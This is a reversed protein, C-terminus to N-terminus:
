KLRTAALLDRLEGTTRTNIVDNATLGARRAQSVGYDINEFDHISHADTNITVMVGMDAAQRCYRDHLDLRHPGANLELYCGRQAAHALIREMDLDMEPRKPMRRGTPHGVFTTYPNDMARIIRETQKDRPLSFKSHVSVVVVDLLALVDDDLDLSGDELIDVEIGKLITIGDIQDQLRDIEDVQRRLRDEDLGNAVTLRKSHDTVAWFEYGIDRAATAIEAIPHKGDSADSHAHLNGRIDDSTILTPLQGDLAQQIEGRDERLEPPIWPLDLAAYVDKETAGAIATDDQQVSYENVRLGMTKARARIAINHAQSGTFYQLAAGWSDAPVVRLDVQLGNDLVASGKTNGQGLVTKFEAFECFHTILAEATGSATVTALFDLDGVTDRGRRWSGAPTLRNLHPYENLWDTLATIWRAATSRLYRRDSSLDAQIAKLINEESKAGMGNLARIKQQEAAEKLGPLDVVDLEQWFKRVKKPGIGPLDLLDPLNPPIQAFYEDYASLDGTEIWELLLGALDKGIGPLSELGDGAAIEAIPQVQDGIVRGANRYARVRFGNEDLIEMLDATRALLFAIEDNPGAM